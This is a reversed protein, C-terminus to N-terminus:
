ITMMMMMCMLHCRWVWRSVIFFQFLNLLILRSFQFRLACKSWKAQWKSRRTRGTRTIKSQECYISKFGWQLFFSCFIICNLKTQDIDNWKLVNLLASNILNFLSQIMNFKEGKKTDIIWWAICKVLLVNQKLGKEGWFSEIWNSHNNYM